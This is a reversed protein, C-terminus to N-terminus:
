KKDKASDPKYNIISRYVDSPETGSGNSTNSSPPPTSVPAETPRTQPPSLKMPAVTAGEERSSTTIKPQDSLGDNGTKKVKVEDISTDESSAQLRKKSEIGGVLDKEKRNNDHLRRIKDFLEEQLIRRRELANPDMMNADMTNLQNQLRRIEMETPEEKRAAADAGSVVFPVTLIMGAFLLSWGQHHNKM